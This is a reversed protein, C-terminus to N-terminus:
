MPPRRCSNQTRTCVYPAPDKQAVSQNWIIVDQGIDFRTYTRPEVTFASAGLVLGQGLDMRRPRQNCNGEDMSIQVACKRPQAMNRLEVTSTVLLFEHEICRGAKVM